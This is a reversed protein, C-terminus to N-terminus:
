ELHMAAAYGTAFAIQLNFGGTRADVDLVEGAFYLGPVLRSAMTKPDVEFVKVGGATVVAEEVPGLATPVLPFAKVREGLRRREERTVERVKRDPPLEAAELAPLVFARPLLSSLVNGLDRNPSESFDRLLRADLQVPDLAPKMDIFLRYEGAPKRMLASASLVLPGSVGQHTFLMEGLEQFVPKKKGEERLTLTVNKLSLGAMRGCCDGACLIPVLSGRLPTITHGAQRALAFGSGDSGTGPYSMGGAALVINRGRYEEGGTTRVGVARGEELLIEAVKAQLIKAGSNKAFGVLADAISRASDSVPYVRNGRETKLPVGLEEFLAMTSAPPYGWIASYLFKPNSCVNKLFDEPSCNNTLNCRGKGTVLIKRAPRERGEAVLVSLGRRAAYGACLLGAAGGGIVIADWRGKGEGGM